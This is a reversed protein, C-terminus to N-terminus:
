TLAANPKAIILLEKGDLKNGQIQGIGDWSLLINPDYQWDDTLILHPCTCFRNKAYHVDLYNPHVAGWNVHWIHPQRNRYEDGGNPCFAIFLGNPSLHKKSLEIFANIDSLHEIVHSCMVIDLDKPIDSTETHITVNLKDQGFSARPKSLEFGCADFGSTKLKFVNYGWSCGYDLIRIENNPKAVLATIYQEYSRLGPFSDKKLQKIEADSPINTMMHTDISYEKQYFRELWAKDDKPHRHSLACNECRLLWTVGYKKDIERLNRSGCGPCERTQGLNRLSRWLYKLRQELTM